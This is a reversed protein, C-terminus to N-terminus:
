LVFLLLVSQVSVHNLRVQSTQPEPPKMKLQSLESMLKDMAAANKQLAVNKSAIKVAQAEIEQRTEQLILHAHLMSELLTYERKVVLTEIQDCIEESNPRDKPIGLCTTVIPIIVDGVVDPVTELYQSRRETETLIRNGVVSHSPKPWIHAFVHLMVCGFSFMDLGTGYPQNRCNTLAEPPLFDETSSASSMM